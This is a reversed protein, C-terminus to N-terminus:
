TRFTRSYQTEHNMSAIDALFATSSLASLDGHLSEEAIAACETSLARIIAQGDTQGIPVLRQGVAVLNSVFAHLYVPATLDLPLNRLRAARGAAVPYTLNGLTLGWVREVTRCFATGQAETELLRERSPAFARCTADIEEVATVNEARYAAALFIADSRGGGHHLVDGIWGQLAKADTVEGADIARELGHSYSFAGVPFAPSFWQALTLLDTATAMPGDTGM